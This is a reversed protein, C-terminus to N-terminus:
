SGGGGKSRNSARDNFPIMNPNLKENNNLPSNLLKPNSGMNGTGPSNSIIRQNGSSSETFSNKHKVGSM